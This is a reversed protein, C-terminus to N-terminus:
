IGLFGCPVLSTALMVMNIERHEIWTSLKRNEDKLWFKELSDALPMYDQLSEVRQYLLGYEKFKEKNSEVLSYLYDMGKIGISVGMERFALRYEAPFDQPNNKAYSELGLLASEMLKQLFKELNLSNSSKVMLQAVRLAASLLGGIGLPDDTFLVMGKCIKAMDDIEPTLDTLIQRFDRAVDQLENYTVYGDLPDHQGMPPVQPRQLDISMKWYM